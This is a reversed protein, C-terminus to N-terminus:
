VNWGHTAVMILIIAASASLCAAMLVDNFQFSFITKVMVGTVM